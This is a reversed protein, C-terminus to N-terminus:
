AVQFITETNSKFLDKKMQTKTVRIDGSAGLASLQRSIAEALEISKGGAWRVHRGCCLNHTKIKVQWDEGRSPVNVENTIAIDFSAPRGCGKKDCRMKGERFFVFATKPGGGELM